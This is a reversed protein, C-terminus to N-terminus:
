IVDNKEEEFPVFLGPKTVHMYYYDGPLIAYKIIPRKYLTILVKENPDNTAIRASETKEDEPEDNIVTPDILKLIKMALDVGIEKQNFCANTWTDVFYSRKYKTM